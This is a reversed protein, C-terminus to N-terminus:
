NKAESLLLQKLGEGFLDPTLSLHQITEIKGAFEQLALGVLVKGSAEGWVEVRKADGEAVAEARLKTAEAESAALVRTDSASSEAILSDREIQAKTTVLATEASLQAEALDNEGRRRVLDEQRRALEIETALENEQIARENEVALARRNFVAEDARQQISERTPTGLAKEVEKQPLVGIVQVSTVSLGMEALEADSRLAADVAARIREAGERVAAELEIEALHRRTPPQSREAWLSAIKELPYEDWEGTSLSIGFHFRRAARDPDTVRYRLTLQVKVEQLDATRETLLFTTECDEVPVQAIAASLPNFWYALGVGQRILKGRRFHLIHQNTEARLHKWPGLTTLTAM